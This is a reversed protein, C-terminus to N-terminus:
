RPGGNHAMFNVLDVAFDRIDEEQIAKDSRYGGFVRALATEGSRRAEFAFVLRAGDLVRGRVRIVPQGGGWLGAFYRAGGGGKEYEVITTELRLARAEPPIPTAMAVGSFLRKARLAALIEDRLVGRAWALNEMGDPHVNPAAIRPEDVLFVQYGQFKFGEALWVKQLHPDDRYAFGESTSAVPPASACGTLTSVCAIVLWQRVAAEGLM